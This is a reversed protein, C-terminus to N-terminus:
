YNRSQWSLIPFFICQHTKNGAKMNIYESCQPTIASEQEENRRGEGTKGNSRMVKWYIEGDAFVFLVLCSQQTRTALNVDLTSLAWLLIIDHNGLVILRQLNFHHMMMVKFSRWQCLFFSDLPGRHWLQASLLGQQDHLPIFLYMIFFLLCHGSLWALVIEVRPNPFIYKINDSLLLQDYM